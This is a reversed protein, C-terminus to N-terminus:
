FNPVEIGLTTYISALWARTALFEANTYSPWNPNIQGLLDLPRGDCSSERKLLNSPDQHYIFQIIELPAHDRVAFHLATMGMNQNQAYDGRKIAAVFKAGENVLERM